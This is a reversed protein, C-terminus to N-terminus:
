EPNQTYFPLIADEIYRINEKAVDEILEFAVRVLSEPTQLVSLTIEFKALYGELSGRNKGFCLLKKLEEADKTPLGINNKKALDLITAIRLSGDLHCHLEVKPLKKLLKTSIKM